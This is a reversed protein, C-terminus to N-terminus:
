YINIIYNFDKDFKSPGSNLVGSLTMYYGNGSGGWGWNFKYYNTDTVHYYGNNPTVKEGVPVLRYGKTVKKYATIMWAHASNSSSDTGAMIVPGFYQLNTNLEDFSVSSVLKANSYGLEKLVSVGMSCQMTTSLDWQGNKDKKAKYTPQSSDKLTAYLHIVFIFDALNVQAANSLAFGYPSKLMSSWDMEIPVNAKQHYACTQAIAIPLCGAPFRKGSEAHVPCENNFPSNQSWLTKVDLDTETTVDVPVVYFKEGSNPDEWIAYEFEEPDVPKIPVVGGDGDPSYTVITKLYDRAMVNSTVDLSGEDSVAFLRDDEKDKSVVAFGGEDFNIIYLDTTSANRSPTSEIPMVYTDARSADIGTSRSPTSYFSNYKDIAFQVAESVSREASLQAESGNEDEWIIPDPDDKHCGALLLSM